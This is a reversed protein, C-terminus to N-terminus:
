IDRTEIIKLLFNFLYITIKRFFQKYVCTKFTNGGRLPSLGDQNWFEYIGESLTNPKFISIWAECICCVVWLICSKWWEVFRWLILTSVSNCCKRVPLMKWPGALWPSHRNVAMTTVDRVFKSFPLFYIIYHSIANFDRWILSVFM